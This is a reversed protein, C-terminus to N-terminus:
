SVGPGSVLYTGSGTHIVTAYAGGAANVSRNGTTGVGALYLTAGSGQVITLVGATGNFIVVDGGAPLSGSTLTVEDCASTAVIGRGQDTGIVTYDATKTDLPIGQYGVEAASAGSTSVTGDNFAYNGAATIEFQTTSNTVFRIPHNTTTGIVAGGGTGNAQVIVSMSADSDTVTLSPNDNLAITQSASFNNNANKLAVNSSLWGDSIKLPNMLVWRTNALDYVVTTPVGGALDSAVLATGNGKVIARATLGNVALTAAGTNAGSPLFTVRMGSAYSTIAPTLNGTIADVTGGVTGLLSVSGDQVQACNIADTRATANSLAIGRYSNFNFNASPAGQADRTLCNNLATAIDDDQAKFRSAQPNIALNKDNVWDYVLTYVGGGSWPM